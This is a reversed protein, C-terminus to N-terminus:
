RQAAVHQDSAELPPISISLILAEKEGRIGHVTDIPVRLVQHPELVTTQDALTAIAKGEIVFYTQTTGHHHHLRVPTDATLRLLRLSCEETEEHSLVEYEGLQRYTM